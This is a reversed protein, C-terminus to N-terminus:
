MGRGEYVVTPQAVDVQGATKAKSPNDLLFVSDVRIPWQVAGDNRGGWHHADSGDLPFEVLQWNKDLLKEGEPQFTQGASDVFRMKLANGSADGRVWMVLARPRGPLMTAQNKLKASVFKWGADFNYKLRFGSKAARAPTDNLEVATLSQTSKVQKDGEPTLNLTAADVKLPLYTRERVVDFSHRRGDTIEISVPAGPALTFSVSTEKQGPALVLPQESTQEDRTQKMAVRAVITGSYAEGSPNEVRVTLRDDVPPFVTPVLPNTLRIRVLQAAEVSDGIRLFVPWVIPAPDRLVSLTMSLNVTQGPRVWQAASAGFTSSAIRVRQDTVNKFKMLLRTIENSKGVIELPVRQWGVLARLALDPKEPVIYMPADQLQVTIGKEGAEISGTKEGLHNYTTFKSGESAPIVTDHPRTEVTWAAMRVDSGNDFMLVHDLPVTAVLRKNFRYGDLLTTLAKASRYAPKPDYIPDRKEHAEHLVTGFHHEPEKADPGDDRWDYWISLPVEAALNTLWQRPLFKGQKEPDFGSWVSSYGWEGAFIPISKGKPAFREIMRRLALYEDIVTEPENQRYPHVTVADWYELLGAMFCQELFPFDIKSCAPGVHIEEPAASKIAKGVVLALKIYDEWKPAPRWFPSINPENYMEWVIGRGKFHQVSAAAWKAFAERGTDTHPSQGDDYHPNAYDLIFVARMGATDLEKMLRDYRSFDYKGKEQEIINWDFDMRVFRLGADRIMKMEGAAPQTFHINVGLGSPLTAPVTEGACAVCCGLAVLLATRLIM